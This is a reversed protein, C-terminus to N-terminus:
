FARQPVSAQEDRCGTRETLTYQPEPIQYLPTRFEHRFYTFVMELDGLQLFYRVNIMHKMMSAAWGSLKMGMVRAVADKNGLSVVCGHLHTRLPTQSGKDIAHLVNIAAAAGTQEAAEVMQPLPKGNEVYTQADGAAFVCGGACMYDDVQFRGRNNLPLSGSNVPNGEIGATWVLRGPLRTGDALCTANEEVKVIKANTLVKVGLRELKAAAQAGAQAGLNPLIAPMAEILTLSVESRDLGYHACLRPCWRSLEGALEAGTFGGGAVLFSLLERRRAADSCQAAQEFRGSVMRRVALANPLSWMPMAHEEAGEIGFYNPRSGTALILYDFPIPPHETLHLTKGEYDVQRVTDTVLRVVGSRFLDNLPIRVAEKSVRGGAVEHLSTMLVHFRDRNVLTVTVDQRGKLHKELTKAAHIGAYGAGVIVIHNM